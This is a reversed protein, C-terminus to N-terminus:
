SRRSRSSDAVLLLLWIGVLAITGFITMPHSVFRRISTLMNQNDADAVVRRAGPVGDAGSSTTAVVLPGAETVRDADPSSGLLEFGNISLARRDGSLTLSLDVGALSLNATDAGDFFADRTAKLADDITDRFIDSGGAPNRVTRSSSSLNEMERVESHLLSGNALYGDDIGLVAPSMGPGTRRVEQVADKVVPLLDTEAARAKEERLADLSGERVIPDALLPTAGTMFLFGTIVCRIVWGNNAGRM